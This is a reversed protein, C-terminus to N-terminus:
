ILGLHLSLSVTFINIQKLERHSDSAHATVGTSAPRVDDSNENQSWRRSMEQSLPLRETTDLEKGWPRYLGQFERPWFVPTPPRERRWPIKGVWPNFGPRGGQLPNKVLQAELSVQSYQFPYGIGEGPSRGSVPMSGPDGAKCASDKGASSGLFDWNDLVPMRKLLFNPCLCWCVLISAVHCCLCLHSHTIPGCALLLGSPKWHHWFCLFLSPNENLPKLPFM